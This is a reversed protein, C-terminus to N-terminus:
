GNCSNQTSTFRANSFPGTTAYGTMNWEKSPNMAILNAGDYSQMTVSQYNLLDALSGNAKPREAITEVVSGDYGANAASYSYLNGNVRLLYSYKGSGVYRTNATVQSGALAIPGPFIANAPLAEIFAQHLGPTGAGSATGDQGLASSQNGIGAWFSAASPNTCSTKGFTPEDFVTEAETWGSGAMTYGSWNSSSAQTLDPSAVGNTSSQPQTLPANSMVLYPLQPETAWASQVLNLWSAYAPSSLAPPTPLGYQADQAAPATTPDFGPPPQNVSYTVGAPTAYNYATGGGSLATTNTLPVESLGCAALQTVSVAYPSGTICPVAQASAPTAQIVASAVIGAALSAACLGLRRATVVRAM